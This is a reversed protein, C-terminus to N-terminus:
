EDWLMDTCRRQKIFTITIQIENTNIYHFYWMGTGRNTFTKTM